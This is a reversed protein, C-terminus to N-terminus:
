GRSHWIDANPALNRGTGIAPRRHACISGRLRHRPNTTRDNVTHTAHAYANIKARPAHTSCRQTALRVALAIEASQRMAKARHAVAWNWTSDIAACRQECRGHGAAYRPISKPRFDFAAQRKGEATWLDVFPAHTHSDCHMDMSTVLSRQATPSSSDIAAQRKGEAAWMAILSRQMNHSLIALLKANVM